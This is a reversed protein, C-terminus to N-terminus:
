IWIMVFLSGGFTIGCLCFISLLIIVMWDPITKFVGDISVTMILCIIGTLISTTMLKVIIDM